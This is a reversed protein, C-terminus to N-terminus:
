PAVWEDGVLQRGFYSNERSLDSLDIKGNGNLDPDGCYRWWPGPDRRLVVVDPLPHQYRTDTADDFHMEQVAFRTQVCRPLAMLDGTGGRTMGALVWEGADDVNQQYIFYGNVSPDTASDWTLYSSDYAKIHVPEQATASMAFGTLAASLTVCLLRIGM